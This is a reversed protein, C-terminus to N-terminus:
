RENEGPSHWVSIVRGWGRLRARGDSALLGLYGTAAILFATIAWPGQVHAATALPALYIVLLPLGAIAPRHLRVALFDILIAALGISGAALVIVGPTQPVPPALKAQAMGSSALTVLHHLSAKTPVILGISRSSARVANLYLLLAALYTVLGAVVRLLRWRTGSAACCVIIAAAIAKWLVGPSALMPVAPLGGPVTAG